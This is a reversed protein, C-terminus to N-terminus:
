KATPYEAFRNEGRTASTKSVKARDREAQVNEAYKVHTFQTSQDAGPKSPHTFKTKDPM